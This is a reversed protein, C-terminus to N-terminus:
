QKQQKLYHSKAEELSIGKDNAIKQIAARSDPNKMMDMAKDKTDDILSM